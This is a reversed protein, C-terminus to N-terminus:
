SMRPIQVWAGPVTKIDGKVRATMILMLIRIRAGAGIREPSQTSGEVALQQLSCPVPAGNRRAKNAELGAAAGVTQVAHPHPASPVSLLAGFALSFLPWKMGRRTADTFWAASSKWLSKVAQVSTSPTVNQLLVQACRTEKFRDKKICDLRPAGTPLLRHARVSLPPPFYRGNSKFMGRSISSNTRDRAYRSSCDAEVPSGMQGWHLLFHLVCAASGWSDKHSESSLKPPGRRFFPSSLLPSRTDIQFECETGPDMNQCPTGM